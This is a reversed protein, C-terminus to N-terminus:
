ANHDVANFEKYDPEELLATKLSEWREGYIEKYYTEFGEAGFLKTAKDKQKM